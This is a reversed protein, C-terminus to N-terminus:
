SHIPLNQVCTLQNWQLKDRLMANLLVALKRMCAVLVVKAKKGKAKLRDAFTKIVPNSKMASLAAMFLVNRPAQRGGFISRQGKLKGSDHNYPALGLLAAFQKRDTKGAEPMHALLTASTVAGIGPVTKLLRDLDKFEDDSNILKKIQEDLLKIQKELTDIVKRIAIRAPNIRAAGLRNNQQTLTLQFQRRCAVLAHLDAQNQRVKELLRPEAVQAFRVLIRADIPDTKALKKLGTAVYRVDRPNVLAVNLEADLLTQILEWELGGTSEIVIVQPKREAFLAVIQQHGKADNSFSQVQHNDSTALDLSAKAVDIGVFLATTM